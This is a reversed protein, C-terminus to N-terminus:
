QAAVLPFLPLSSVANTEPAAASESLENDLYLLVAGGLVLGAGTGFLGFGLPGQDPDYPTTLVVAGAILGLTGLGLGAWGTVTMWTWDSRASGVAVDAAADDSADATDSATTEAVALEEPLNVNLNLLGGADLHFSVTKERGDLVVKLEHTGPPVQLDVVPTTKGTDKGDIFVQAGSPNSSLSLSGMAPDVPAPVPEAEAPAAEGTSADAPEAGEPAAEPSAAPTAEPAAETAEAAEPSTAAAPAEESAAPEPAPPPAEEALALPTALSVLSFLLAPRLTMM